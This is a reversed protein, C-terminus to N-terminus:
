RVRGGGVVGAVHVRGVATGARVGRDGRQEVLDGLVVRDHQGALALRRLAVALVRAGADGRPLVDDEPDAAVALGEAPARRSSALPPPCLTRIDNAETM